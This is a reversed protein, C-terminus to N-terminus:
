PNTQKSLSYPGSGYAMIYLMGGMIALNKMFNIMQSQAEAPDVAWFPHFIFTVPILFLFIVTAAWHARWGVLILLGGGLEVLITLPLLIEVMPLGKSAMYGATQAFGTIKNFGSLIFILALLARGLLPAFQKTLNCLANM